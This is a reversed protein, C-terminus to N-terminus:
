AGKGMGTSTRAMWVDFLGSLIRANQERGSQDVQRAREWRGELVANSWEGYRQVVELWPHLEARLAPPLASKALHQWGAINELIAQPLATDHRLLATELSRQWPSGRGCCSERSAWGIQELVASAEEGWLRTAQYWSAWPDYILPDRLYCGITYLAVRSATVRDMPNAFYADVADPLDPARRELPGLHLENGMEADNVPYNDWIALPHQFRSAAVQAAARTITLSCINPGTWFVRIDPDLTAGVDDRYASASIGWYETPCFFLTAKPDRERLITWCENTVWSQAVGPSGFRHADAESLTPDIDDWLIAFLKAGMSQWSLLKDKLTLQDADDAFRFDMGPSIAFGIEMGLQRRVRAIEYQWYEQQSAPLSKRWQARHWPDDKPGYLYANFGCDGAFQLLETRDNRSWPSGYFGEIIGRWKFAM